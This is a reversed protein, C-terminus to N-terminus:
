VATRRYTLTLDDEWDEGNRSMRGRTTLTTGDDSFTGTFQQALDPDERRFEWKGPGASVEYVRHVGRSDFYHMALRGDTVGIVAVADPIAPHDYHARQILFREGDLWEFTARGRIDEGPLLPHAGDTEWEGVLANLHRLQDDM